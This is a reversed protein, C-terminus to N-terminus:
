GGVTEWNSSNAAVCATGNTEHSAGNHMVTITYKRCFPNGNVTLKQTTVVTYSAGTNANIWQTSKGIPKDLARSLKAQDNEDMSSTRVSPGSTTGSSTTANAQMAQSHQKTSSEQHSSLSSCASLVVTIFLLASNTLLAKM